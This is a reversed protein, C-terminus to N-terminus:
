RSGKLINFRGSGTKILAADLNMHNSDQNIAKINRMIRSFESNIIAIKTAPISYSPCLKLALKMMLLERYGEPLDVVTTLTFKDIKTWVSLHLELTAAQIPYTYFSAVPYNMDYYFHTPYTTKINKVIIEQYQDNDIQTLEYDVPSIASQQRVFVRQIKVPRAIDIDAGDGLTHPNKNATLTSVVNTTNYLALNQTNFDDVVYNLKVLADAAEEATPTYGVSFVGIEKGAEKILDLATAM